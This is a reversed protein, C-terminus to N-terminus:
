DRWYRHRWYGPYPRRYDWGGGAVVVGTSYAPGGYYGGNYAYEPYGPYAVCAGLLTALALAGVPLLARLRFSAFM